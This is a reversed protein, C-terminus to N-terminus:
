HTKFLIDCTHVYESRSQVTYNHQNPGIESICPKPDPDANNKSAPDPDPDTDANSHFAADLDPGLDAIFDFHLLKRPEFHLM